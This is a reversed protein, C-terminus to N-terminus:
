SNDRIFKRGLIFSVGLFLGLGLGLFLNWIINEGKKELPMMPLDLAQIFPTQNLLAFSAVELNKLAEAYLVSFIRIDRDTQARPVVDQQLWTNRYSDQFDALTYDKKHILVRLSDVKRQLNNHTERQKEIVKDVYFGSLKKFLNLALEYSIQENTNTVTMEMIGTKDNFGTELDHMFIKHLTRLAKNEELSFKALTDKTFHFSRLPDSNYFFQKPFWKNQKLYEDILFNALYDSVDNIKIRTFFVEEAIKRSKAIEIIKNLSIEQRNMSFGFQGLISPLSGASQDSDNLMFTTKSIYQPSSTISKYLFYSLVPIFFYLLVRINRKLENTGNRIVQLIEKFSIEDYPQNDIM